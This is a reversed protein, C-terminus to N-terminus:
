LIGTLGTPSTESLLRQTPRDPTETCTLTHTIESRYAPREPTDTHSEQHRAGWQRGESRIAPSPCLSKGRRTEQQERLTATQTVEGSLLWSGGGGAGGRGAGSLVCYCGTEPGARPWWRRLEWPHVRGQTGAGGRTRTTSDGSHGSQLILGQPLVQSWSSVQARDGRGGPDQAWM